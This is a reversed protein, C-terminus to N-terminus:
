ANPEGRGPVSTMNPSHSLSTTAQTLGDPSMMDSLSHALSQSLQDNNATAPLTINIRLRPVDTNSWNQKNAFQKQLTQKLSEELASALTSRDIQTLGSVVITDITLFIDGSM